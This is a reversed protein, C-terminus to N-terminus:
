APSDALPILKPRPVAVGVVRGHRGRLQTFNLRLFAHLQPDPKTALYGRALHAMHLDYRRQSCTHVAYRGGHRRLDGDFRPSIHYLEHFLTVLKDDFSQNLFRPLCFTMLYLVEQGAVIYRQVQYTV